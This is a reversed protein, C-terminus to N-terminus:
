PQALHHPTQKGWHYLWIFTPAESFLKSLVIHKKLKPPILVSENESFAQPHLASKYSEQHSLFSSHGKCLPCCVGGVREGRGPSSTYTDWTGFRSFHLWRSVVYFPRWRLPCRSSAPSPGSVDPASPPIPLTGAWFAESVGPFWM